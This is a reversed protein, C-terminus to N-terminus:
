ASAKLPIVAKCAANVIPYMIPSSTLAPHTGMQFKVIDDATMRHMICASLVNTMEGVPKGGCISGGMIVGTDKAFILKVKTHCSNPMGGPHTDPAEATGIVIKARMQNACRETLGAVGFARGNIVTSFVSIAGCNQHTPSFLNAGAIRAESTAISALMVGTPRGDFFSQKEACDGCAFIDPDTYTQMYRDVKITNRFGLELGAKKALDTNPLAGIGLIIMDAKLEKGSSLKVGTVKKKGLIAEVTQNVLIGVGTEELKAQAEECYENDMAAQLCHPMAEVVTVNINRGKRCEDAFEMGIFGGGIIVLDKVMNMHSHVESLYEFEKKVPYVNEKDIGPIPPVLPVSGTAFVLKEYGIIEGGKMVVTKKERDVEIAEGRILEIGNSELLGDPIVNNEPGGVTGYIYPIGCPILVTGEKRILIIKKDPYHRRCSIGATIGSLGGLVVVDAKKM